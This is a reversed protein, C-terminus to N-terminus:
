VIPVWMEDLSYKNTDAVPWRGLDRSRWTCRVRKEVLDERGLYAAAAAAGGVAGRCGCVGDCDLVKLVALHGGWCRRCFGLGRDKKKATGKNEECNKTLMLTPLGRWSSVTM